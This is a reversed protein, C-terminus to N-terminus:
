TTEDEVPFAINPIYPYSSNDESTSLNTLRFLQNGFQVYTNAKNYFGPYSHVIYLDPYYGGRIADPMQSISFNLDAGATSGVYWRNATIKEPIYYEFSTYHQSSTDNEDADQHDSPIIYMVKGESNETVIFEFLYNDSHYDLTIYKTKENKSVHYRVNMTDGGRIYGGKTYATTSSDFLTVISTNGAWEFSIGIKKDDNFYLRRPNSTLDANTNVNLDLIDCLIPVITDALNMGNSATFYKKQEKLTHAM